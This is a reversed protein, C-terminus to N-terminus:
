TVSNFMLKASTSNFNYALFILFIQFNILNFIYLFCQQLGLEIYIEVNWSRIRSGITIIFLNQCDWGKECKIQFFVIINLKIGKIRQICQFHKHEGDGDVSNSTEMGSVAAVFM